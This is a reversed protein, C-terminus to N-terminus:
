RKEKVFLNILHIALVDIEMIVLRYKPVDYKFMSMLMLILAICLISIIYKKM